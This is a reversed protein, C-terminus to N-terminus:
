EADGGILDKIKQVLRPKRGVDYTYWTILCFITSVMKSAIISIEVLVSGTWFAETIMVVSLMLSTLGLLHKGSILIALAVPLLLLGLIMDFYHPTTGSVVMSVAFVVSSAAVLTMTVGEGAMRHYIGYIGIGLVILGTFLKFAIVSHVVEGNSLMRVGVSFSMLAFLFVGVTSVLVEPFEEEEVDHVSSAPITKGSGIGLMTIGGQLILGIGNILLLAVPIQWLVSNFAMATVLIVAMSASVASLFREGRSWFIITCCMFGLAFLVSTDALSNNNQISSVTYMLAALSTMLMLISETIIHNRLSRLALVAIAACLIYLLMALPGEEFQFLEARIGFRYIGLSLCILGILMIALVPADNRTNSGEPYAYDIIVGTDSM